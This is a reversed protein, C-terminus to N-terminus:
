HPHKAHERVFERENAPIRAADRLREALANGDLSTLDKDLTTMLHKELEPTLEKGLLGVFHPPAVLVWRRFRKSRMAQDLRQGLWHAFHAKEVDKPDSAPALANHHASAGESSRSGSKDSVLASAKARSEDHTFSELLTWSTAGDQTEFLRGKAADCVLIWVTNM